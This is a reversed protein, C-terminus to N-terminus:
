GRVTLRVELRGTCLPRVRLSADARGGLQAEAEYGPEQDTGKKTFGTATLQTLIEDRVKVVDAREGERSTVVLVTKGQTVVRLLKLGQPLTIGPPLAVATEPTDLSGCSRKSDKVVGARDFHEFVAWGGAALGAVIVLALLVKVVRNV